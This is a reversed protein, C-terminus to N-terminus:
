CNTMKRNEMKDIVKQRKELSIYREKPIEILKEDTQSAIHPNSRSVTSTIKDAIKNGILDDTAEVTKETATKSTTKFADKASKKTKSQM